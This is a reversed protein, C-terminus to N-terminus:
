LRRTEDVALDQYDVTAEQCAADVLLRKKTTETGQKRWWCGWREWLPTEVIGCLAIVLSNVIARIKRATAPYWDSANAAGGSESGAGAFGVNDGSGTRGSGGGPPEAVEDGVVAGSARGGGEAM